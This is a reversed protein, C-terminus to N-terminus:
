IETLNKKVYNKTQSEASVCPHVASGTKGQQGNQPGLGDRVGGEKHRVDRGMPSNGTEKGTGARHRM